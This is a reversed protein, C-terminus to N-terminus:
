DGVRARCTAEERVYSDGGMDGILREPAEGALPLIGIHDSHEDVIATQVLRASRECAPHL